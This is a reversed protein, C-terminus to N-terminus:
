GTRKPLTKKMRLSPLETGDPLEVHAPRLIEYGQSQYFHVANLSADLYLAKMRDNVAFKETANLLAKGYGHGAMDPDVYLARLERTALASFGIVREGLLAVYLTEFCGRIANRYTEVKSHRTWSRIEDSSYHGACLVRISRMHVALIAPADDVCAKRIQLAEAM